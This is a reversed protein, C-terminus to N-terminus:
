GYMAEIDEAFHDYVIRRKVKLTPTLEGHEVTLNRPLVRFKKVQEVQAFEANITDVHRQLEALLDAHEHVQDVGVGLRTAWAQAGDPDLTVLASLYKRRDGIVVAENILDHRKLAAEINKPAINKGGATIIIEKKRGTIKLFEGDFAGLDGSHLWGDILTEATAKEDKYYGMFVNPGKVIVEGDDAIRVDVGPVPPGVTGIRTKGPQNFTTPGCDESQGYVEHVLIDLGLFFEIVDPAIPAAGSVCVKARGLGVAPKLKSYILKNALRYQVGLMGPPEEGRCRYANARQGVGMAWSVLKKKVPSADQLKATIGAHFKEWIRPVGFFITPQVEKLNDPVADISEAYYVAYGAASSGHVTFMQEAIHSLPLYSLVCDDATGSVMQLAADATWSLNNHSLMVGKPPGTTGSTYILTALDEPKLNNIRADLDSESVQRARGLFDTWSSVLPDSIAPADTFLVAHRLHPLQDRVANVKQWQAENELFIVSAECHNTIYQVEQPSNTTYIGAPAGGAAMCAMDAITWEPRNFGLICVTDGPQFGTSMLARALTRVEDVYDKWSTAIWQGGKRVHYAPAQPREQARKLMRAPMSEFTM